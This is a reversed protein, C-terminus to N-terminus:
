TKGANKKEARELREKMAEMADRQQQVLLSLKRVEEALLLSTSCEQEWRRQFLAGVADTPVVHQQPAAPAAGPENEAM